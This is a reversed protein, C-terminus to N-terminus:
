QQPVRTSFSLFIYLILSCGFGIIRHDKGALVSHHLKSLKCRTQFLFLVCTPSLTQRYTRWYGLTLYVTFDVKIVVLLEREEAISFLKKTFFGDNSLDNWSKCTSRVSSVFDCHLAQILIVRPRPVYMSVFTFCSSWKPHHHLWLLNLSTTLHSEALCAMGLKGYTDTLSPYIINREEVSLSSWIFSSFSAFVTLGGLDRKDEWVNQKLNLKFVTTPNSNYRQTYIVFIDRDHETMLVPTRFELSSLNKKSLKLYSYIYISM